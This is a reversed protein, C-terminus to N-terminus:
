WCTRGVTPTLRCVQAQRDADGTLPATGVMGLFLLCPCAVAACVWLPPAPVWPRGRGLGLGLVVLGGVGVVGVFGCV